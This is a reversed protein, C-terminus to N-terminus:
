LIKKNINNTNCRIGYQDFHDEINKFALKMSIGLKEFIIKELNDISHHKSNKNTFMKLGDYELTLIPVKKDKFYDIMTQLIKNEINLIIKSLNKGKFNYVSEDLFRKDNEHFYDQFYIVEKELKKLYDNINKDSHYYNKLVVM